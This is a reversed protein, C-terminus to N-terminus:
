KKLCQILVFGDLGLEPFLVIEFLVLLVKWPAVPLVNIIFCKFFSGHFTRWFFSSGEM